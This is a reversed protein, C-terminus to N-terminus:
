DMLSYTNCSIEEGRLKIWWEQNALYPKYHSWLASNEQLLRYAKAQGFQFGQWPLTAPDNIFKAHCALSSGLDEKVSASLGPEQYREIMVPVADSTLSNLYAVDLEEGAMARDINRAAIFRDVNILALSAGFGVVCVLLVLAFNGRRHLLELLITILILGALWYIFVHTYTRLQSFGYANEYLMLRQFSSALIVLVNVMLLVSLITFGLRSVKSEKKSFSSLGIYLVLSLVAVAVLESFGRRAYESYTYGTETINATGGFLYRVQIIVFAIFLLDVAGLIIGSETWGLFPKFWSQKTDPKQIEGSPFLAKLYVGVLFTGIILIYFLRFLYEPLKELNFIKKLWDGFVPDASSLLLGLVAVIPLAILVGRLVPLLKRWLSPKAPVNDSGSPNKPHSNLVVAGAFGGGIVKAFELFYDRLRYWPWYGNLFTATLLIMGAFSLLVSVIRTFPEERWAMVSAFGAILLTLLISLWSPRKGERWALLYGAGLMVAIWIFFSVGAPKNWFLFDFLWAAVFAALWFWKQQKPM